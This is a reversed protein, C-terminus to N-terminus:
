KPLPTSQGAVCQWRGARKVFVHTFRSASVVEGNPTKGVLRGTFIATSGFIRVSIEDTLFNIRPDNRKFVSMLQDKTILQGSGAIASFDDAYIQDLTKEDGEKIAQRRKEELARLERETKEAATRGAITFKGTRSQAAAMSIASIILLTIPVFRKM